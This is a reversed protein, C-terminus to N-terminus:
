HVDLPVAASSQLTSCSSWAPPAGLSPDARLGRARPFCVQVDTSCTPVFVSGSSWPGPLVAVLLGPSSPCHQDAACLDTWRTRPHWFIWTTVARQSHVRQSQLKAPTGVRTQMLQEWEEPQLASPAGWPTLYRADPPVLKHTPVVQTCARDGVGGVLNQLVERRTQGDM